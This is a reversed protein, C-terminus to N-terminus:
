STTASCVEAASRGGRRIIIRYRLADTGAVKNPGFSVDLRDSPVLGVKMGTLIASSTLVGATIKIGNKEVLYDVGDGGVTKSLCVGVDVSMTQQAKYRIVARIPTTADGATAASDNNIRLPKSWRDGFYSTFDNDFWGLATEVGKKDRRFYSWGAGGFQYLSDAVVSGDEFGYGSANEVIVPEATAVVRGGNALPNGLVDRVSAGSGFNIVTDDGWVVWRDAGIRFLNVPRGQTDIRVPAGYPLLKSEVTRFATASLKGAQGVFLGMNPFASQEILAYWNAHTVGTAYLQVVSKVLAAAQERQNGLGFSYETAWIPKPTGYRAMVDKLHAIEIDIGEPTSRYPHVAVADIVGLMGAAFLSDLFGTGIANTSGGLVTVGPAAAKVRSYLTRLTSVYTAARNYSTPYDLTGAGNVENGIELASLCTGFHKALAVLYAAYATQGAASYVSVGGDYLINKPVITLTLKGGQACFRDLTAVPSGSFDYTGRTREASAWSVTDRIARTGIQTTLDLLAPNWGQSFQTQVGFNFGDAPRNESTGASALAASWDSNTNTNSTAGNVATVVTVASSQTSSSTNTTEAGIAWAAVSSLLTASVIAGMVKKQM